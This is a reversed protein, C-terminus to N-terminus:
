EEKATQLAKEIGRAIYTEADVLHSIAVCIRDNVRRVKGKVVGTQSHKLLVKSLRQARLILQLLDERARDASDSNEVALERFSGQPRYAKPKKSSRPM